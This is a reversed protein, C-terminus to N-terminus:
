GFVTCVYVISESEHSGIKIYAIVSSINHGYQM